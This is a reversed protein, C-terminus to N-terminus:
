LIPQTESNGFNYLFDNRQKIIHSNLGFLHMNSSTIVPVNDFKVGLYYEDNITKNVLDIWYNKIEEINRSTRVEKIGTNKAVGSLDFISAENENFSLRKFNRRNNQNDIKCPSFSFMGNYPNDYTAGIFLVNNRNHFPNILNINTAKFIDSLRAYQTANLPLNIVEGIVFVTDIGFEFYGDNNPNTRSGFLIISGQELSTIKDFSQLCHSYLFSNEFVFPDTSRCTGANLTTEITPIFIPKHIYEAGDKQYITNNTEILSDYEWEGFFLLKENNSQIDPYSSIYEGKMSIVKRVHSFMNRYMLGKTKNRDFWKISQTKKKPTQTGPHYAQIVKKM